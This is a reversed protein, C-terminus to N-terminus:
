GADAGADTRGVFPWPLPWAKAKARDVLVARTARESHPVMVAATTSLGREFSPPADFPRGASAEDAALLPFDFRVRDVLEKGVYLEIAFRGMLRPTSLAKTLEIRRAGGYSVAGARYSLDIVWQHRTVMPTPDPLSAQPSLPSLSSLSSAGADSTEVVRPAGGDKQEAHALLALPLAMAVAWLLVLARKM